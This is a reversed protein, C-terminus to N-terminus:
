KKVTDSVAPLGKIWDTVTSFTPTMNNHGLNSFLAYEYIKGYGEESKLRQVSLDVPISGDNEGFIWLGPIKLRKLSESPNTDKGLFAPWVYPSKRARLAETYSPLKKKDKDRTYKSFIDEESVKCVPGSWLAMYSVRSSKEAALPVIWGAQSIGTLGLPVDKTKPHKELVRFAALADDALLKLNTGSVSKKREYTGGSEGVGRKDYVLAAIGDEAFRKAWHLNRRQKGSGHVFVVASYIRGSKPFVISGALQNGHSEFEVDEILFEGGFCFSGILLFIFFRNLKLM